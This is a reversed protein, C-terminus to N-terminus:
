DSENKCSFRVSILHKPLELLKAARMCSNFPTTPTEQKAPLCLARIKKSGFNVEAREILSFIKRGEVLSMEKGFSIVCFTSIRCNPILWKKSLPSASRKVSLNASLFPIKAKEVEKPSGMM